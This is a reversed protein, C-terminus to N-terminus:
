WRFRFIDLPMHVRRARLVALIAIIAIINLFLGGYVASLDSEINCCHALIITALLPISADADPATLIHYLVRQAVGLLLMGIAVGWVGFNAYFEVVQPLNYSTSKDFKDLLGYRHGFDQGLVKGPKDPYLFRPILSWYLDVYTAGQWYPVVTPTTTQVAVMTSIENLRRMTTQFSHYYFGDDTQFGNVILDFFLASRETVGLNNQPDWAVARFKQKVGSVPIMILVVVLTTKWLVKGRVLWYTGMLPLFHQMIPGIGGNSLDIIAMGPILALLAYVQAGRLRGKLYYYFLLAVGLSSFQQLIAGFAQFRAPIYNRLQLYLLGSFALTWGMQMGSAEDLGRRMRPISGLFWRGPMYFGILLMAFGLLIVAEADVILTDSVIINLQPLTFKDDLFVPLGFYGAFLIAYFSMFPLDSKQTAVHIVLPLCGLFCVGSALLRLVPDLDTRGLLNLVVLVIVPSGLILFQSTGRRPAAQVGITPQAPFPATTISLGM